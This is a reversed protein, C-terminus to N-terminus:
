LFIKSIAKSDSSFKALLLFHPLSKTTYYLDGYSKTLPWGSRLPCPQSKRKEMSNLAVRICNKVHNFTKEEIVVQVLAHPARQQDPVIFLLVSPDNSRRQFFCLGIMSNSAGYSIVLNGSPRAM